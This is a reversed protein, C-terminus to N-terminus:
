FTYKKLYSNFQEKISLVTYKNGMHTKSQNFGDAKIFSQKIVGKSYHELQNNKFCYYPVDFNLVDLVESAVISRSIITKGVLSEEVYKILQNENTLLQPHFLMSILKKYYETQKFLMRCSLKKRYQEIDNLVIDRNDQLCNWAEDIGLLLYQIEKASLENRILAKKNHKTTLLLSGEINHPPLIDIIPFFACEYDVLNPISSALIFNEAHLDFMRFIFSLTIVAGIHFYYQFLDEPSEKLCLIEQTIYFNDSKKLFKIEQFNFGGQNLEKIREQFFLINTPDTPKYYYNKNDATVIKVACSNGCHFDGVKKLAAINKLGSHKIIKKAAVAQREFFRGLRQRVTDNSLSLLGNRIFNDDDVDSLNEAIYNKILLDYSPAIDELCKYYLEQKSTSRNEM